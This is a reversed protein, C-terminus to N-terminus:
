NKKSTTEAESKEDSKKDSKNDKKKDKNSEKTEVNKWPDNAYGFIQINCGFAESNETGDENFIVLIYIKDKFGRWSAQGENEEINEPVNAIQYYEFGDAKLDDIYKAFDDYKNDKVKISCSEDTYTKSLIKGYKIDTISSFTENSEQIEGTEEEANCAAFLSIILILSIIISITKKM